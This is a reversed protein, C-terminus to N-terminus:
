EITITKSLGKYHFRFTKGSHERKSLTLINKEYVSLVFYKDLYGKNNEIHYYFFGSERKKINSDMSGFTDQLHLWPIFKL